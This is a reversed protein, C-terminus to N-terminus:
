VPLTLRYGALCVYFDCGISALALVGGYEIAFFTELLYFGPNVENAINASNQAQAVLSPPATSGPPTYTVVSVDGVGLASAYFSARRVIFRSSPDPYTFIVPDGVNVAGLYLTDSYPEKM